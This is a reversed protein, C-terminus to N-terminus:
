KLLMHQFLSHEQVILRQVEQVIQTQVRQEQEGGIDAEVHQMQYVMPVFELQVVHELSLQVRIQRVLLITMTFLRRVVISSPIIQVLVIVLDQVVVEVITDQDVSLELDKSHEEEQVLDLRWCM